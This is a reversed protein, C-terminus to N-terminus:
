WQFLSDYPNSVVPKVTEPLLKPAPKPVQKQAPKPVPAPKTVPMKAEKAEYKWKKYKEMNTMFNHFSTQDNEIKQKAMDEESPVNLRQKFDESLEPEKITEKKKRQRAKVETDVKLKVEKKLRAKEKKAELAKVRIRELHAKQKESLPKKIPKEEIETSNEASIEDPMEIEKKTVKKTRRIDKNTPKTFGNTPKGIFIDNPQSLELPVSLDEVVINAMEEDDCELNELDEVISLEPLKDM